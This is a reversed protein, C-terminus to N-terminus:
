VSGQQTPRDAKVFKGNIRLKNKAAKSRGNFVRSVNYKEKYKRQKEKYARIKQQRIHSPYHGIQPPAAKASTETLDLCADTISSWSEVKPVSAWPVESSTTISSYSPIRPVTNTSTLYGGISDLSSIKPITEELSGWSAVRPVNGLFSSLCSELQLNRKREVTVQQTLELNKERQSALERLLQEVLTSEQASNWHIAIPATIQGSLKDNLM